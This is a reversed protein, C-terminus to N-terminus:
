PAHPPRPPHETGPTFLYGLVAPAPPPGSPLVRGPILVVQRVLAPVQEWDDRRQDAPTILPGGGRGARRDHEDVVGAPVDSGRYQRARVAVAFDGGGVGVALRPRSTGQVNSCPAPSLRADAECTGRGATSSPM